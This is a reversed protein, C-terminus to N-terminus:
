HMLALAANSLTDRLGYIARRGRWYWVEWGICLLFVPSLALLIWKEMM